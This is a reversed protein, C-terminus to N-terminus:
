ASLFDIDMPQGCPQYDKSSVMTVFRVVYPLVIGINVKVLDPYYHRTDSLIMIADALTFLPPPGTDYM